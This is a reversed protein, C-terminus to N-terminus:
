PKAEEGLIRQLLRPVYENARAVTNPDKRPLAKLFGRLSDAKPGLADVANLAQMSVYAGNKAPSALDQLVALGLALDSTDGHESL